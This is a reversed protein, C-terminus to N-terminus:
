AAGLWMDSTFPWARFGSDDMPHEPDPEPLAHAQIALAVWYEVSIGALAAEHRALQIVPDPLEITTM